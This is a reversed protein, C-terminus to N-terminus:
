RVDDGIRAREDGVVVSLPAMEGGHPRESLPKPQCAQEKGENEDRDRGAVEDDVRESVRLLQRAGFM